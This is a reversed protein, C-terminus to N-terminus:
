SFIDEVVDSLERLNHIVGDPNKTQGFGYSAYVFPIGARHSAKEDGTTDGVYIADRIGNRKMILRINEEKDKGSRGSMEIDKFYSEMHHAILFSQVYGDQSNSVIYLDYTEVLEELVNELGDYIKGGHVTLFRVEEEGIEDIIQMQKEPSFEPFLKQGIEEMTFGMLSGMLDQDMHISIDEYRSFVTNWIDCTYGTSDWLTGDLDFIIAKKM